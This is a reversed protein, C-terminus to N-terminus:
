WEMGNRGFIPDPWHFHHRSHCGVLRFQNELVLEMRNRKKDRKPIIRKPGFKERKKRVNFSNLKKATQKSIEKWLVSHSVFAANQQSKRVSVEQQKFQSAVSAEFWNQRFFHWCFCALNTFFVSYDILCQFQSSIPHSIALTLSVAVWVSLDYGDIISQFCNKQDQNASFGPWKWKSRRSRLDLEMKACNAPESILFNHKM